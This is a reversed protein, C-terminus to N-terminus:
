RSAVAGSSSGPVVRASSVGDIHTGRKWRDVIAHSAQWRQLPDAALVLFSAEYGAKLEGLRRKPFIQQPTTQSWMRLMEVESWLGFSQLYDAEAVSDQSYRDSGILIPVGAGKLRALNDHQLDKRRRAADVEKPSSRNPDVMALSATPILVCHKQAALAIDVDTLRYPATADDAGFGYGPMHALIDVGGTVAVHFDAATDIHAAVRLGAAHAKATILPVLKPDLGKGLQPDAATAPQFHESDTIYVKILDPKGALIQPWQADLDAATAIEWYADGRTAHTALVARRQEPTAPYYFGLQIADYVEKPHGNPATLGGHAYTVDPTTPTDVLHAAVVGAAGTALDTMGEAYFIGDKLYQAGVAPTRDVSDFNHEHADGYPPVVFGNHLDVTAARDPDHPHHTLLGNEAYFDTAVFHSGDFWQGHVFHTAPPGQAQVLAPSLLLAALLPKM